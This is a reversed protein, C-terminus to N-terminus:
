GCGGEFGSKPGERGHQQNHNRRSENLGRNAEGNGSYPFLSEFERSLGRPFALLDYAAHFRRGESWLKTPSCLARTPM